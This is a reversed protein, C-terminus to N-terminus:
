RDIGTRDAGRHDVRHAAAVIARDAHWQNWSAHDDCLREAGPCNDVKEGRCQYKGSRQHESHDTVRNRGLQTDADGDCQRVCRGEFACGPRDSRLHVHRLLNDQQLVLRHKQCEGLRGVLPRLWQALQGVYLSLREANYQRVGTSDPIAAGHLAKDATTDRQPGRLM